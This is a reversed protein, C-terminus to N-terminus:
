RWSLHTKGLENRLWWPESCSQAFPSLRRCAFVPSVLMLVTMLPSDQIGCLMWRAHFVSNKTTLLWLLDAGYIPLGKFVEPDYVCVQCYHTYTWPSFSIRNISGTLIFCSILYSLDTIGVKKGCVAKREPSWKTQAGPNDANRM